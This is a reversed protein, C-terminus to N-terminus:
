HPTPFSSKWFSDQATATRWRWPIPIFIATM